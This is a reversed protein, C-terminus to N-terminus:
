TLQAKPMGTIGNEEGKLWYDFWDLYIKWYDLRADGVARDGVVTTESAEESLCHTTPSIIVFQNDRGASSEANERLLNFLELTEAAGYDYWSNM